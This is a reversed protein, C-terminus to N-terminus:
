KELVFVSCGNWWGGADDFGDFEVNFMVNLGLDCIATKTGAKIWANRWDDVIYVFSSAMSDCYHKLGRYQSQESHEGDYLYVDIDIIGKKVPDFSFCDADILNPDNSIMKKWNSLFTEKPGNFESFNDILVYNRLRNLNGYLASISTSGTYVGVELYNKVVEKSLLTNIFKRYKLGSFGHMSLIEQPLINQRKEDLSDLIAEKLEDSKTM